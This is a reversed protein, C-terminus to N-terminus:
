IMVRHVVKKKRIVIAHLLTDTEVSNKKEKETEVFISLVAGHLM